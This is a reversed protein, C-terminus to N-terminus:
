SFPKPVEAFHFWQHPHHRVFDELCDAVYQASAGIESSGRPAPRAAPYIRVEHRLFGTRAAFVPFLPTGTLRALQFPGEPIQFRRGFLRVDVARGSPAARDLQLALCEGRQLVELLRLGDQPAEGVYLTRLGQAARVREHLRRVGPDVEAQMVLALSRGLRATLAAGAVEWAGTHATLLVAGHGDRLAESLMRENSVSVEPRRGPCQALSEALCHAFNAFVELEEDSAVEAQTWDLLERARARARPMLRASLRGIPGPSRRLWWRPGHRAGWYAWRRLWRGPVLSM